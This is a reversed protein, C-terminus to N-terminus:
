KTVKEIIESPKLPVGESEFKYRNDAKSVIRFGATDAANMVKQVHYASDHLPEVEGLDYGQRDCATKLRIIEDRAIDNKSRHEPHWAPLWLVFSLPLATDGSVAPMLVYNYGMIHRDKTHDSLKHIFEMYKGFKEVKTDDFIIRIRKRSQATADSLCFDRLFDFFLPMASMRLLKESAEPRRALIKYLKRLDKGYKESLENLTDEESFPLLIFLWILHYQRPSKHYPFGARIVLIRLTRGTLRRILGSCKAKEARVSM